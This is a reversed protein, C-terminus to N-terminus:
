RDRDRMQDVVVEGVLRDASAPGGHTIQLEVPDSYIVVLRDIAKDGRSV